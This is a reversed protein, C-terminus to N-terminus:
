YLCMKPTLPLLFYFFIKKIKKTDMPITKTDKAETHKLLLWKM